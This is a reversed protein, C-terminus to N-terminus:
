RFLICTTTLKGKYTLVNNNKTTIYNALNHDLILRHLRNPLTLDIKECLGKVSCDGDNCRM